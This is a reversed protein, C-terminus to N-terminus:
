NEEYEAYVNFTFEEYVPPINQSSLANLGKIIVHDFSM